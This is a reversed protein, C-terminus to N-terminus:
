PSGTSLLGRIDLNIMGGGSGTLMLRHILLLVGPNPSAESVHAEKSSEPQRM